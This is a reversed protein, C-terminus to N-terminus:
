IIEETEAQEPGSPNEDRGDEEVRVLLFVDHRAISRHKRQM